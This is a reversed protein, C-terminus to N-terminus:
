LATSKRSDALYFDLFKICVMLEDSDGKLNNLKKQISVLQDRSFKGDKLAKMVSTSLHKFCSKRISNHPPNDWEPTAKVVGWAMICYDVLSTFQEGDTLSKSSEVLRKKFTQLHVSVRNYALSDTKSELRTNPLSKYINKKLFNLEEEMHSLDPTPVLRSVEQRLEPHNLLLKEMVNELQKKSIAKIAIEPDVGNVSCNEIKQRKALPSIRIRDPSPSYLSSAIGHASPPTDSLTLRKRPSSRTQIPLMLRSNHQQMEYQLGQIRQRLPSRTIDPSFTLPIQRRGRAQIVM